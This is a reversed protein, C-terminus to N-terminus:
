DRPNETAEILMKIEQTTLLAEPLLRKTHLKTKIWKVETPYEHEDENCDRLWQYFRKLTIKYDRKTHETYGAANIQSVLKEVDEKRLQQFPKGTIRALVSLHNIYKIIRPKSIGRVFLHDTFKTINQKNEECINPESKLREAARRFTKEYDYIDIRNTPM